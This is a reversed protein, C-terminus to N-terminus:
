QEDSDSESPNAIRLASMPRNRSVSGYEPGGTRADFRVATTIQPSGYGSSVPSALSPAPSDNSVDASHRRLSGAIQRGSVPSSVSRPTANVIMSQPRSTSVSRRPGFDLPPLSPRDTSARRQPSQHGPQHSRLTSTPSISRFAPRETLSQELASWDLAAADDSAAGVPRLPQPVPFAETPEAFPTPHATPPQVTLSPIVHETDAFPNAYPLDTPEYTPPTYTVGNAMAIGLPSPQDTFRAPPSNTASFSSERSERVRSGRREDVRGLGFDIEEWNKEGRSEEKHTFRRYLEKAGMWGKEDSGRRIWPFRSRKFEGEDEQSSFSFHRAQRRHRNIRVQRRILWVALPLAVLVVLIPAIISALNRKPKTEGSAATTSDALLGLMDANWQGKWTWGDQTPDRMDLFYTDARPSGAANLGFASIMVGESTMIASHYSAASVQPPQLHSPISWEWTTTNIFALLTTSLDSGRDDRAGGHLILLDLSPHAVLTAGIRGVPATGGLKQSKWGGSPSWMGLTDMPALGGSATQGGVMYITKHDPSVTVASDAVALSSGTLDSPFSSTSLVSSTSLPSSLVDAAPYM